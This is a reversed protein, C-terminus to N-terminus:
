KKSRPFSSFVTGQSGRAPLPLRTSVMHERGRRALATSAGVSPQVGLCCWLLNRVPAWGVKLNSGPVSVRHLLRLVRVRGVVPGRHSFWTPAMTLLKRFCRKCIDGVASWGGGWGVSIRGSVWVHIKVCIPLGLLNLAGKCLLVYMWLTPLVAIVLERKQDWKSFLAFILIISLCQSFDM